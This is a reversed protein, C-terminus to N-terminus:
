PQHLLRQSIFFFKLPFHVSMEKERQSVGKNIHVLRVCEVRKTSQSCQLKLQFVREDGTWILQIRFHTSDTREASNLKSTWNQLLFFSCFFWVFSSIRIEVGALFMGSFNRLRHAAVCCVSVVLYVYSYLYMHELHWVMFVFHAFNEVRLM